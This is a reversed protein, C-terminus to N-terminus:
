SVDKKCQEHASVGCERCKFVTKGFKIRKGCPNCRDSLNVSKKQFSHPRNGAVASANSFTRKVSHSPTVAPPRASAAMPTHFGGEEEDDEEIPAEHHAQAAQLRSRRVKEKINLVRDPSIERASERDM